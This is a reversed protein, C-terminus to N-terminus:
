KRLNDQHGALADLAGERGTVNATTVVVAQPLGQSDVVIHRQIGQFRKGWM